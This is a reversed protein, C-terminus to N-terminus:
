TLLTTYWRIKQSIINEREVTLGSACPKPKKQIKIGFLFSDRSHCVGQCDSELPKPGETSSSSLWTTCFKMEHSNYRTCIPLIVLDLPVGAFRWSSHAYARLGESPMWSEPPQPDFFARTVVRTAVPLPEPVRRNNSPAQHKLPDIVGEELERPTISTHRGNPFMPVKTFLQPFKQVESSQHSTSTVVSCFTLDWEFVESRTDSVRFFDVTKWFGSSFMSTCVTSSIIEVRGCVGFTSEWTSPTQTM